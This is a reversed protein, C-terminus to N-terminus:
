GKPREKNMVDVLNNMDIHQWFEEITIPMRRRWNPHEDVTGPINVQEHLGLADELPVLLIRSPAKALFAQVARSLANNMTAPSLSPFEDNHLVGEHELAALLQERDTVRGNREDQGMQENPYLNLEQRWKLDNGTWWGAMTSLDHTSVTVMSQEPYIEPRFFLGSDWREFFLVKYSLLGAEAMIEGFGDPVNGLDEGIVVCKNRRSELAIIRFIEDLPFTIYIGEDAGMGPAVWYQRMLGLVHDIRLAGAHRMNSRLAKVLPLYGQEQLAVPNIPTLGWDQGLTNMADPPAGVAAGSVYSHKDAWVEAGSGDCGVALDMYLGVPMDNAKASSAAAAIQSDALWQLFQFYGIREAHELKFQEVEPSHPDQYEVPWKKWGYAHFDIKRFHEYLADFTALEFLDDGMENCFAQYQKAVDTNKDLHETIFDQYLLELVQYKLHAAHPYDIFEQSNAQEVQQKFDDSSVVDQAAQCSAFNPVSTVDIYLTNLFCRSTPSYPSIHGPNNPYLPHLPNLGIATVGRKASQEVLSKLDGFDGMGWSNDSKLSYLQAALGWMRYDAAENPSYCTKPAVILHGTSNLGDLEIALQHYGEEIHPLVLTLKQYLVGDVDQEDVKNLVSLAQEGTLAEGSELTIQWQITQAIDQAAVSLTVTHQPAESKVMSMAPLLTLWSKNKLEQASALIAEDSNLDYGMAQLLSQLAQQNAQVMNGYCDKYSPHFGVVDALQQLPTM